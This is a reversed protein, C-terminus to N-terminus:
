FRDGLGLREHANRAREAASSAAYRQLMTRSRWGTLQMLDGENGGSALWDHAFFHRFQHPHVEGIGAQRGRRNLMQRIGSEGLRGKHGLWFWAQAAQPHKARSREYRDLAKVTKASLPLFRVRRGKGTVRLLKDDLLVDSHGDPNSLRLGLVEARRGGTDLLVRIMAVDRVAEFGKGTECVRLLKQVQEPKLVEPPEEDIKPPKIHQMPSERVEREEILWRFFAQLGRYRNNVTASKFRERLHAIWAEVHQREIHAVDTPMRQENLYRAFQRASETYTEVTRASKDARLSRAWSTIRPAVDGTVGQLSEAISPAHVQTMASQVGKQNSKATSWNQTM